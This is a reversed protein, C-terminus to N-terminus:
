NSHRMVTKTVATLLFLFFITSVVIGGTSLSLGHVSLMHRSLAVGFLSALCGILVAYGLLKKLDHTLLRATLAPGTLMALVMLVGVARFAGIVTASVQTMLLYNFFITSIGLARALDGDFSTICYEKFLLFILATNVLLIAYVFFCDEFQLADVNGMVVEVGIHSSRTLLTAAIIGFAFLSTFVLGISADEQLRVVKTLFETLYTTAIGTIFSALLMARMDIGGGQIEDHLIAKGGTLLYAAVIGLLATHSLSNALMTMKRLVLFTGLLACSAAIGILVLIQVEDSVFDTYALQGTFLLWLRSALQWFFGFFNKDAYPNM